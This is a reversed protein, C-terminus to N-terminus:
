DIQDTDGQVVSLFYDSQLFEVGGVAPDNGGQVVIWAHGDHHQRLFQVQGPARDL